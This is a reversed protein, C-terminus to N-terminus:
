SFREFRWNSTCAPYVPDTGRSTTRLATKKPTEPVRNRVRVAVDNASDGLSLTSVDNADLKALFLCAYCKSAGCCFGRM